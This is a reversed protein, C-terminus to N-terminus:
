EIRFPLTKELQEREEASLKQHLVRITYGGVLKGNDIFMWDSVQDPKSTLPQGMKINTLQVPDNDLKGTFQGNEYKLGSLWMHETNDGDTVALKVSFGTQGPKPSQFAKIFQQVEAQAQKMAANMEKDNGEVFVVNPVKKDDCGIALGVLLIGFVTARLM